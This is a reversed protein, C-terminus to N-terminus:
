GVPADRRQACLVKGADSGRDDASGPEIGQAVLARGIGPRELGRTHRCPMVMPRAQDVAIEPQALGALGRPDFRLAGAGFELRQERAPGSRAPYTQDLRLAARIWSSSRALIGRELAGSM